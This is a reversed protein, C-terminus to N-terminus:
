LEGHGPDFREGRFWAMGRRWVDYVGGVGSRSILLTEFLAPDRRISEAALADLGEEMRRELIGTVWDADVGRGGFRDVSQIRLLIEPRREEWFALEWVATVVNVGGVRAVLEGVGRQFRVPRERVDSFKGQPTVCLVAEREALVHEGVRLFRVAGRRTGPEVGFFGLRKFFGYKALAKEEMPMYFARGPLFKGLLYLGVLPDWWSPHNVVVLLPGEQPLERVGGRSLRVSQVQRKLFRRGYWSFWSLWRRSRVPLDVSRLATSISPSRGARVPGSGVGSVGSEAACNM